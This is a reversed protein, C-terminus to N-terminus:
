MIQSSWSHNAHCHSLRSWIFTQQSNILFDQNKKKKLKNLLLVM